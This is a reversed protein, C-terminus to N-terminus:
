FLMCTGRFYEPSYFNRSCYSVKEFYYDESSDSSDNDDEMGMPGSHDLLRSSSTSRFQHKSPKKASSSARRKREKTKTSGKRSPASQTGSNVKKLSERDAKEGEGEEDKEEVVALNFPLRPPNKVKMRSTLRHGHGGEPAAPLDDIMRARLEQLLKQHSERSDNEYQSNTSLLGTGPPAYSTFDPEEKNDAFVAEVLTRLTLYRNDPIDASAEEFTFVRAVDCFLDVAETCRIRSLWHAINCVITLVDEYAVAAETQRLMSILSDSSRQRSTQAAKSLREYREDKRKDEEAQEEYELYESFSKFDSYKRPKRPLAARCADLRIMRMSLSAM